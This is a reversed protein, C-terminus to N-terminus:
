SQIFLYTGVVSLVIAGYSLCLIQLPRPLVSFRLAPFLLGISYVIGLISVLCLIRMKFFFTNFFDSIQKFGYLLTKNIEEIDKALLQVATEFNKITSKQDKEFEKLLTVGTSFGRALTLLNALDHYSRFNLLPKFDTIIDPKVIQDESQCSPITMNWTGKYFNILATDADVLKPDIENSEIAKYDLGSSDYGNLDEIFDTLISGQAKLAFHGFYEGEKGNIIRETAKVVGCRPKSDYADMMYLGSGLVAFVALAGLFRLFFVHNLNLTNVTSRAKKFYETNEM